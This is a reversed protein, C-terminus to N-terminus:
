TRPDPMQDFVLTVTGTLDGSMEMLRVRYRGAPMSPHGEVDLLVEQGPWVLGPVVPNAPDSADVECRFQCLPVSRAALAARGHDRVLPLNDWDGSGSVTSEVLPWPDARRCLTLDEALHCLTGRDQGSGTAYVRMVPMLQACVLNQATGGGPFCTLNPTGVPSPPLLGDSDSGAVLRWQLGLGGLVPRFQVDPGGMVDCIEGIRKAVSNNSANFGEYTREHVGKEGLYDGVDVPLSGGPKATAHAVLAAVVARLSLGRYRVTSLTLGDVTCGAQEGEQVTEVGAGFTQEECVIRNDLLDMPSLLSFSTDEWTDTRTGIAGAVVPAGDWMLCLGRRMPALARHREDADRGPVASWPVSIGSGVSDGAGKDRETALSCDSVTVDWSLAPVDIDPGWSGDMTDFLRCSWSM